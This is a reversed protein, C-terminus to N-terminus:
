AGFRFTRGKGGPKLRIRPWLPRPKLMEKVALEIVRADLLVACKMEVLFKREVSLIRSAQNITLIAGNVTLYPEYPYGLDETPCSCLRFNGPGWPLSPLKKDIWRYGAPDGFADVDELFRQFGREIKSQHGDSQGGWEESTDLSFYNICKSFQITLLEKRSLSAVPDHIVDEDLVAAREPPVRTFLTM